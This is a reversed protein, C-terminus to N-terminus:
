LSGEVFIIRDMKVHVIEKSKLKVWHVDPDTGFRVGITFQNYAVDTLRKLRNEMIQFDPDDGIKQSLREMCKNYEDISM